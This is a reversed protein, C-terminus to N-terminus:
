SPLWFPMIFPPTVSSHTGVCPILRFSCWIIRTSMVAEYVKRMVLLSFMWANWSRRELLFIGSYNLKASYSKMTVSIKGVLPGFASLMDFVFGWVLTRALQAHESWLQVAWWRLGSRSVMCSEHPFVGQGPFCLPGVASLCVFLVCKLPM